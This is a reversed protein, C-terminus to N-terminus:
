KKEGKNILKEIPEDFFENLLKDAEQQTILKPDFDLKTSGDKHISLVVSDNIKYTFEKIKRIEYIM